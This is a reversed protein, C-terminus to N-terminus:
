AIIRDLWMWLFTFPLCAEFPAYIRRGKRKVSKQLKCNAMHLTSHATLLTAHSRLGTCKKGSVVLITLPALEPHREGRGL